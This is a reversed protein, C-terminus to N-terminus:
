QKIDVTFPNITIDFQINNYSANIYILLDMIQILEISGNNLKNDTESLKNIINGKIIDNIKKDNIFHRYLHNVVFLCNFGSNIIKQTINYIKIQNQPTMKQKLTHIINNILENPLEGIAERVIDITLNELNVIYSLRQFLTIMKRM